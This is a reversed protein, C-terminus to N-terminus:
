FNPKSGFNCIFLKSTKSTIMAIYFEQFEDANGTQPSKLVVGGDNNM